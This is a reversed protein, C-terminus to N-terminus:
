RYRQIAFMSVIHNVVFCVICFFRGHFEVGDLVGYGIKGCSAHDNDDVVFVALVLAVEDDRGFLYSGLLNIEHELVGAAHQASGHGNRPGLAQAQGLLDLLVGRDEAGGDGDSYVLKLAASGADANVVAAGGEVGKGVRYGPGGVEAAGAM